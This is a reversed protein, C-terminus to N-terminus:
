RKKKTTKEENRGGDPRKLGLVRHKQSLFTCANKRQKFRRSVFSLSIKVCQIDVEGFGVGPPIGTVSCHRNKKTKLRAKKLRTGEQGQSMCIRLALFLFVRKERTWFMTM